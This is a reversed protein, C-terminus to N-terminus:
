RYIPPIARYIQVCRKCKDKRNRGVLGWLGSSIALRLFRGCLTPTRVHGGYITRDKAIHLKIPM